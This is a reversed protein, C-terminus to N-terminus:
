TAALVDSNPAFEYTFQGDETMGMTRVKCEENSTEKKECKFDGFYGPINSPDITSTKNTIPDVVKMKGDPQLTTKPMLGQCTADCVEAIDTISDCQCLGTGEVFSGTSGPCQRKCEAAEEEPTLCNGTLDVKTDSDCVTKVIQECDENSDTNTGNNKPQYGISCLCSGTSKIFDRNAGNCQCTLAGGFFTSSTPGCKKCGGQGPLDNYYGLKCPLCKFKNTSGEKKSYSGAPCATPEFSGLPCYFGTPCKYGGQTVLDVPNASSTKGVCVYGPTCDMCTTPDDESYLGRGCEKCGSEEDFNFASGSGYSGNPCNTVRASGKPCYTGFPCKTYTDSSGGCYYGPPCPKPANVGSPCYYGPPCKTPWDAGKPCFSGRPCLEPVVTAKTPCYYGPVCSYCAAEDIAANVVFDVPGEKAAGMNPRFRGAPCSQPSISGKPCFYGPPCMKRKYDAIGTVDCATGAPCEVCKKDSTSKEYTNYTGKPCAIPADVGEPCYYGVPCIMM